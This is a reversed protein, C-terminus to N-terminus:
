ENMRREAPTLQGDWQSASLSRRRDNYARWSRAVADFASQQSADDGFQELSRGTFCRYWTSRVARFQLLSGYQERRPPNGAIQARVHRDAVQSQGSAIVGFM